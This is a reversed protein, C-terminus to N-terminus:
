YTQFFPNTGTGDYIWTNQNFIEYLIAKYITTIKKNRLIIQCYEEQEWYVVFFLRIVKNVVLIIRHEIDRKFFEFM